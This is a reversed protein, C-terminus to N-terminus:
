INENKKKALVKDLVIIIIALVVVAVWFSFSMLYFGTYFGNRYDADLSILRPQKSALSMYGVASYFCFIMTIGCLLMVIKIFRKM